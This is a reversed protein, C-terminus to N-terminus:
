DFFGHQRRYRMDEGGKGEEMGVEVLEKWVVVLEGRREAGVCGGLLGCGAGLLRGRRAVGRRTM